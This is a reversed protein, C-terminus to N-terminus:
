VGPTINKGLTKFDMGGEILSRIHPSHRTKRDFTQKYARIFLTPDQGSGTFDLFAKTEDDREFIHLGPCYGRGDAVFTLLFGACKMGSQKRAEHMRALVTDPDKTKPLFEHMNTVSLPIFGVRFYKAPHTWLGLTKAFGRTATSEPNEGYALRVLTDFATLPHKIPAGGGIAEVAQLKVDDQIVDWEQKFRLNMVDPVYEALFRRSGALEPLLQADKLVMSVTDALTGRDRIPTWEEGAKDDVRAQEKETRGKIPPWRIRLEEPEGGKRVRCVQTQSAFVAEQLEDFDIDDGKIDLAPLVMMLGLSANQVSLSNIFGIFPEKEPVGLWERVLALREVREELGSFRYPYGTFNKHVLSALEDGRDRIIKPESVLIKGADQGGNITIFRERKRLLNALLEFTTPISDQQQIRRPMVCYKLFFPYFYYM